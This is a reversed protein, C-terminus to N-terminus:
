RHLWMPSFNLWSGGSSRGVSRSTLIPWLIASCSGAQFGRTPEYPFHLIFFLLHHSNGILYIDRHPSSSQSPMAYGTWAGRVGAPRCGRSNKPMLSEETVFGEALLHDWALKCAAEESLRKTRGTTRTPSNLWGKKTERGIGVATEWAGRHPNEGVAEFQKDPLRRDGVHGKILSLKCSWSRGPGPQGEGNREEQNFDM